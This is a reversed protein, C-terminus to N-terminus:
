SGGSRSSNLDSIRLSAEACPLNSAQAFAAIDACAAADWGGGGVIMLPRKAAALMDLMVAIDAPDAGPRVAKYCEADAVGTLERLMDEPLALAVPGPRGSTAHHFAKSVMEPIRQASEIQGVWKCLAGYFQRYDIEQFAERYEQDRAVQGIFIVM